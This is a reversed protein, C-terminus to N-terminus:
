RLDRLQEELSPIPQNRQPLVYRYTTTERRQLGSRGAWEVSLTLRVLSGANTETAPVFSSTDVKWCTGDDFVGDAHDGARIPGCLDLEALKSRVLELRRDSQGIRTLTDLSVSIGRFAVTFVMAAITLAVMVELLSFGRAKM